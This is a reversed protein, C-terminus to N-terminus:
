QVIFYLVILVLRLVAATAFLRRLDRSVYAYEAKLDVAKAPTASAKARAAPKSAPAQVQAAPV